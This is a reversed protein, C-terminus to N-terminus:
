IVIDTSVENHYCTLRMKKGRKILIKNIKSFVPLCFEASCILLLKFRIQTQYTHNFAHKGYAPINKVNFSTKMRVHTVHYITRFRWLYKEYSYNLHWVYGYKEVFLNERGYYESGAILEQYINFTCLHFYMIKM